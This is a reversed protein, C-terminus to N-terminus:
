HYNVPIWKGLNRTGKKGLGYINDKYGHARLPTKREERRCKELIIVGVKKGMFWDFYCLFNVM